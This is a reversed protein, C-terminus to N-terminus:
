QGYEALLRARTPEDLQGSTSLQAKTQFAAVAAALDDVAFGLQSLRQAVGSTTDIPDLAGFRLSYFLEHSATSVILEGAVATASIPADVFGESDTMGHLELAGDIRLRYSVKALPRDDILLRLKVRVQSGVVRFRHRQETAGQEEHRVREPIVLTDGEFLVSPDKRLARLEANGPENWIRNWPVGNAAAVSALCDGNRVVHKTV